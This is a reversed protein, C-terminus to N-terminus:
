EHRQNKLLRQQYRKVFKAIKKVSLRRDVLRGYREAAEENSHNLAYQAIEWKQNKSLKKKVERRGTKSKRNSTSPSDYTDSTHTIGYSRSNGLSRSTGTITSASSAVPTGFVAPSDAIDSSRSSTGSTSSSSPSSSSTSSSSSTDSSGGNHSATPIDENRSRFPWSYDNVGYDPGNGQGGGRRRSYPDSGGGRRGVGSYGGGGGFIVKRKFRDNSEHGKSDDEDEESDLDLGNDDDDNNGDESDDYDDDDYYLHDPDGPDLFDDTPITDYEQQHQLIDILPGTDGPKVESTDEDSTWQDLTTKSADDITVSKQATVVTLFVVAATVLEPSFMM